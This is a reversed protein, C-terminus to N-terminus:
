LSSLPIIMKPRLIQGDAGVSNTTEWEGTKRNYSVCEADQLERGEKDRIRPAGTILLKDQVPLFEFMRGTAQNRQAVVRANGRGIVRTLAYEPAPPKVVKGAPTAPKKAPLEQIISGEITDCSGVLDPGKLEVNGRLYFRSRMVGGVVELLDGDV